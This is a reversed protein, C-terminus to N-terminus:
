DEVNFNFRFSNDSPPIVRVKLEKRPLVPESPQNEEPQAEGDDLQINAFNFRFEKNDESFIAAKKVFHYKAKKKPADFRVSEPNLAMTKEEEAMKTRYDGFTSRMIQRKKILPQNASKLTNILKLTDDTKKKNERMHPANLSNELQQICWYLELEFQRDVEPPSSVSQPTGPSSSSPTQNVVSQPVKPITKLKGTTKHLRAKPPPM